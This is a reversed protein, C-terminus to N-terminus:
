LEQAFISRFNNSIKEDTTNTSNPKESIKPQHKMSKKESGKAEDSSNEFKIKKLTDKGHKNEKSVDTMM